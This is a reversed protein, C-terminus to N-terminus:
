HMDLYALFICVQCILYSWGFLVLARVWWRGIPMIFLWAFAASGVLVGLFVWRFADM